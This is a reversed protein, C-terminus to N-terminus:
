RSRVERVPSRSTARRRWVSDGARVHGDIAAIVPVPLEVIQRLLHVFDYMHEVGADDARDSSVEALDVGACFTGGTHGIVVARVAPNGAATTLGARLERLLTTSLANRNAPSDLTLGAVAGEVSYHVLDPM